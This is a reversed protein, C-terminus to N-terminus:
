EPAATALSASFILALWIYTYQFGEGHRDTQRNKGKQINFKVFNERRWGIHKSEKSRGKRWVIFILADKFNGRYSISPIEIESYKQITLNIEYLCCELFLFM